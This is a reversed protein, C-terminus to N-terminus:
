STFEIWFGLVYFALVLVGLAPLLWRRRLLWWGALGLLVFAVFGM